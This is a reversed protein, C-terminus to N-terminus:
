KNKFCLLHKVVQSTKGDRLSVVERDLISGDVVGNLKPVEGSDDSLKPDDRVGYYTNCSSALQHIEIM